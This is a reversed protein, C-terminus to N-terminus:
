SQERRGRGGRRGVRATRPRWDDFVLRVARELRRFMPKFGLSADALYAGFHQNLLAFIVTTADELPLRAALRGQRQLNTLLRLIQDQVRADASRVFDSLLAENGLGPFVALRLIERSAWDVGGLDRYADLMRVIADAPNKPPDLVVAEAKRLTREFSPLLIAVVIGEKNGFYKYVTAVGSGSAAAIEEFTTRAYGQREFLAAAATLMASRRKERQDARVGSM